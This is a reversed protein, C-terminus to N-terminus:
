PKIAPCYFNIVHGSGDRITARIEHPGAKEPSVLVAGGALAKRLAEAVNEVKFNLAVPNQAKETQGALALTLGGADFAAWVGGDRFKLSLGMVDAYFACAQDMDNVNLMVTRLQGLPNKM